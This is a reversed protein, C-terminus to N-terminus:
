KVQWLRSFCNRLSKVEIQNTVLNVSLLLFQSVGPDDTDTSHLISDLCGSGGWYGYLKLSDVVPHLFDDM